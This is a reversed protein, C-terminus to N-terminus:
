DRMKKFRSKELPPELNGGYRLNVKSRQMQEIESMMERAWKVSGSSQTELQISEFSM